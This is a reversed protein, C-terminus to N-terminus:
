EAQNWRGSLYKTRELEVALTSEEQSPLSPVLSIGFAEEFSAAVIRRFLGKDLGPLIELLGATCYRLAMCKEEGFINRIREMDYSYPISGQQLLGDDWRKQASGVIKRNNIIIEGYSSSQFCLPSGALVSGKEKKLKAETYIGIKGFALHFATSIKKYSDLLGGSFPVLYTCASVSYTLEDDHLIARGGTPRRVIPIDEAECYDTDIGLTRQFYGLSLSPRDWGYLRLAPPLNGKRVSTAIAEDLAMNYSANGPGSDILRWTREM